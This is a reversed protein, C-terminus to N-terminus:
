AAHNVRRLAETYLTRLADREETKPGNYRNAFNVIVDPRQELIKGATWGNCEHLKGLITIPMVCAKRFAEYEEDTEEAKASDAQELEEKLLSSAPHLESFGMQVTDNLAPKDEPESVQRDNESEDAEQFSDDGESPTEGLELEQKTPDATVQEQSFAAKWSEPKQMQPMAEDFCAPSMDALRRFASCCALDKAEQVCESLDRSASLVISKERLMYEQEQAKRGDYLVCIGVVYRESIEFSVDMKGGHFFEPLSLSQSM